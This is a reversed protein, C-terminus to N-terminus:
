SFSEPENEMLEKLGLHHEAKVYFRRLSLFVESPYVQLWAPIEEPLPTINSNELGVSAYQSYQQTTTDLSVNALARSQSSTSNDITLQCSNEKDEHPGTRQKYPFSTGPRPNACWARARRPAPHVQRM